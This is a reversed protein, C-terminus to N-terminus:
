NKPHRRIERSFQQVIAFTLATTLGFVTIGVMAEMGSLIRWNEDLTIDGYGLTTFTVISFYFAESLSALGAGDPLLWYVLAWAFVEVIHLSLLVIVTWLLAQFVPRFGGRRTGKKTIRDEMYSLWRAAGISHITITVAIMAIGVALELM